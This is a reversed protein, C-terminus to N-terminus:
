PAREGHMWRPSALHDWRRADAGAAQRASGPRRLERGQELAEQLRNRAADKEAIWELFATDAGGVSVVRAGHTMAGLGHEPEWAADFAFGVYALDGATEPHVYITQLEHLQAMMERSPVDPLQFAPVRM